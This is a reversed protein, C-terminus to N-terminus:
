WRHLMRVYGTPSCVLPLAISRDFLTTSPDVASVDRPNLPVFEWERFAAQNRALSLEEDAGGEVYDFVARPM